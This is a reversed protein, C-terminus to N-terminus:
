CIGLLYNIEKQLEIHERNTIDIPEKLLRIYYGKDIEEYEYVKSLIEESIMLHDVIDRGWYNIDFISNPIDKDDNYYDGYMNRNSKCTICGYFPKCIKVMKRFAYALEDLCIKRCKKIDENIKIVVTNLFKPNSIGIAISIGVAENDNKTTFFSLRSGLEIFQKDQNKLIVDKVNELSVKFEKADKKRNATLYKPTLYDVESLISLVDFVQKVQSEISSKNARSWLIMTYVDIM